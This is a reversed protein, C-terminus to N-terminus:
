VCAGGVHVAVIGLALADVRRSGDPLRTDDAPDLAALTPVERCRKALGAPLSGLNDGLQDRVEAWRSVRFLVRSGGLHWADNFDVYEWTPATSRVELGVRAAVYRALRDRTAAVALSLSVRERMVRDLTRRNRNWIVLSHGESNLTMRWADLVDDHVILGGADFGPLSALSVLLNSM